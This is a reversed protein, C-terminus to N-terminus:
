KLLVLGLKDKSVLYTSSPVFWILRKEVRCVPVNIANQYSTLTYYVVLRRPGMTSLSMYNKVLDNKTTVNKKKFFVNKM